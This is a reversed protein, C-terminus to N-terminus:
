APAIAVKKMWGLGELTGTAPQYECGIFGAYDLRAITQLVHRDDLEGTGPEHRLPVSSIQIHGTLPMLAELGRTVDGHIIQRHYIDFQLKLNPRKLDTILQEALRFDNMLYNPIDRNNIPEIMIEIGDAAAADCAFAISERFAALAAAADGSVIGAMIHLRGTGTARAYDIATKVSARFEERRDPLSAIGREGRAWDGPPLNFLVQTLNHRALRRFIEDPKHEYPFLYEVARFGADAAASFRDLFPWEKFMWSLNAAFNLM